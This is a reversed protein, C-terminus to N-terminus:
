RLKVRAVEEQYGLILNGRTQPALFSLEVTRGKGLPALARFVDLDHRVRRGGIGNIVCYKSLSAADAPGDKEVRAVFLGTETGGLRGLGLQEVLEPTLGQLDAGLRERFLDAFPELAVNFDRRAGGRDVTLVFELDPEERLLRNFEMFGGPARGNVRAITDGVALGAQAAPSNSEVSEVALPWDVSVRAGFWRSATEPNFLDGLAERVEKIPIAFGIGQAGELIAVNIGILEGRLDILPGGSNGPNILADTQLWNEMSLGENARAPARSKSSLIGRSVSEGLGFPNGLALVTEGLLLDDNRAFRVAKFKQGQKKPVIKLLAVDQKPTVVYVHQVEYVGGGAADSLKVQIRTARNVVHLNTLLYGDDSIIVGSGLSSHARSGYFLEEIPNHAEVVSETAVNVVCPMVQEVAQVIADRRIDTEAPGTAAAALLALASGALAANRAPWRPCFCRRPRLMNM